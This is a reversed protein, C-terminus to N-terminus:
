DSVDANDLDMVLRRDFGGRRHRKVLQATELASADHGHVRALVYAVEILDALEDLLEDPEAALVEYYEEALKALLLAPMETPEATRVTVKQGKAAAIEPIYDRILKESM